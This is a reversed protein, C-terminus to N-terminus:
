KQVYQIAICGPGGQTVFAPSLKFVMVETLPFAKKMMEVVMKADELVNAHTVYIIHKKGLEKSELDKIISNVATSLTRKVAFKDLRKGDETQELIPKLKLIGGFAAAVPTLRGGRRLFSFDQPILFSGAKQARDKLWELIEDKSLGEVAMKQAQEVMYRHPGCLTTTNFVTIKDKNQSLERASCASDYTGSLGDAMSINIVDESGVADFAELVEGIPPQSSKPVGGAEIEAYFRDMDMELDRGDWDGISICLPIAKFGNEEAEERTYLSSSDTIIRVM